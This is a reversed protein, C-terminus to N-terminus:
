DIGLEKQAKLLAVHIQNDWPEEIPTAFIAAVKLQDGAFAARAMASASLGAAAMALVKRRSHLQAPMSLKSM